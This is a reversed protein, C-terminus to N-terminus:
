KRADSSSSVFTDSTSVFIMRGDGVHVNGNGEAPYADAVADWSGVDSWGFCAPVMAVKEAKEMVAYDISIDPQAIFSAEEFRTVGGDEQAEAFVAQSAAWVNGAHMAMNEAMVGATFCFMGSNWYYRGAALYAEAKARDPKEVFSKLPQPDDGTAAVELYGYGTEPGTPRIGFVVLNGEQAEKAALGVAKEFAAHDSILHDAALVLCVAGDGYAKQIHRVALAIAPATNRGKPELLYSVQPAKSIEKLLNETLYYHDQNTVILAENAILAARELAHELLPKGAVEMFPKPHMRRSVPWLRTGAGGSLIIPIIKTV